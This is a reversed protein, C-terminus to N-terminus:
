ARSRNTTSQNVLTLGIIQNTDCALQLKQGLLVLCLLPQQLTHHLGVRKTISVSRRHVKIALTM